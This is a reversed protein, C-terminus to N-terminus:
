LFLTLFIIFFNFCLPFFRMENHPQFIHYRFDVSSPFGCFLPLAELTIIEMAKRCLSRPDDVSSSSPLDQWKLSQIKHPDRLRNPKPSGWPGRQSAGGDREAAADRRIEGGGGSVM